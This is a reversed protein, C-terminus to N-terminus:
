PLSMSTTSLWCRNTYWRTMLMFYSNPLFYLSPFNGKWYNQQRKQKQMPVLDKKGPGEASLTAWDGFVEQDCHSLFQLANHYAEGAMSAMESRRHTAVVSPLAATGGRWSWAKKEEAPWSMLRLKGVGKQCWQLFHNLNLCILNNLMKYMSHCIIGRSGNTKYTVMKNYSYFFSLASFHFCASTICYIIYHLM